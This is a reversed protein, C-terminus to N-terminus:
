GKLLVRLAKLELESPDAAYVSAEWRELWDIAKTKQAFDTKELHTKLARPGLQTSSAVGHQKLWKEFAFWTKQRDNQLNQRPRTRYYEWAWFGLTSALLVWLGAMYFTSLNWNLKEAWTRQQNRDFEESWVLFRYNISDVWMQTDRVWAPLKRSDFLRNTTSRQRFFEGGDLEAREPVVWLTPDVRFWKEGDWSEVWVHADDETVTYYNSVSNFAGGLYGSVLRSPFGWARLVIATTSAYHACWGKKVQFFEKLSVVKGPSLSYTFGQQQFYKALMAQAEPLTSGTFNTLEAPLKRRNLGNLSEKQANKSLAPAGKAASSLATYRRLTSYPFFRMTAHPGAPAQKGNAEWWQPWDLAFARRAEKKHIIDQRWWSAGPIRGTDAFSGWDEDRPITFWNWGDHGTLTMGRWYLDRKAPLPTVTAHFALEGSTRLESVDGPRAEESFGVIGEPAPQPPTWLGASFRPLLFFLIVALPAARLVWVWLEKWSVDVEEGLGRVLAMLAVACGAIACLFYLPTKVFLAGTAWLLFTGLTLMRWDRGNRAELMKLAVVALLLNLGMEPNVHRGHKVFALVFLTLGVTKPVVDPLKRHTLRVLIVAAVTMLTPLTVEEWVLAIYVIWSIAFLVLPHHWPLRKM